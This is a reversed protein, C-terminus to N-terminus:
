PPADVCVRRYDAVVEALPRPKGEADRRVDWRTIAALADVALAQTRPSPADLDAAVLPIIERDGIEAALALLAQAAFPARGTRSRWADRLLARDDPEPSSAARAEDAPAADDLARWAIELPTYAPFNLSGIYGEFRREATHGQGDQALLEVVVDTSSTTLPDLQIGKAASFPREPVTVRAAVAARANDFAAQVAPARVNARFFSVRPGPPDRDNGDARLRIRRVQFGGDPQERFATLNATGGHGFIQLARLTRPSPGVVVCAFDLRARGTSDGKRAKEKFAKRFAGVAAPPLTQCVPPQDTTDPRAARAPLAPHHCPSAVAQAVKAPPSPTVTNQAQPPGQQILAPTGAAPPVPSSCAWLGLLGFTSCLGFVGARSLNSM